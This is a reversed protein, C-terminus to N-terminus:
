HGLINIYDGAGGQPTHLNKIQHYVKNISKVAKLNSVHLTGM